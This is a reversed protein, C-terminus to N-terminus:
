RRMEGGGVGCETGPGLIQLAHRSRVRGEVVGVRAMGGKGLGGGGGKEWLFAGDGDLVDWGICGDQWCCFGM